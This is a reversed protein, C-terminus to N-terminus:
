KGTSNIFSPDFKNMEKNFKLIIITFDKIHNLFLQKKNEHIDLLFKERKGKENVYYGWMFICTTIVLGINSSNYGGLYSCITVKM